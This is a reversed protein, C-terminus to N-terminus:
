HAQNLIGTLDTRRICRRMTHALAKIMDSADLLGPASVNMVQQNMAIGTNQTECSQASCAM